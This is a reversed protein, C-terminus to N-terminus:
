KQKRNPNSVPLLIEKPLKCSSFVAVIWAVLFVAWARLSFTSVNKDLVTSFYKANASFQIFYKLMAFAYSRSIQKTLFFKVFTANNVIKALMLSNMITFSCNIQSKWIRKAFMEPCQQGEYIPRTVKKVYKSAVWRETKWLHLVRDEQLLWYPELWKEITGCM